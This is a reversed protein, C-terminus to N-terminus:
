SELFTLKKNSWVSIIAKLNHQNINQTSLKNEYFVAQRELFEIIFHFNVNEWFQIFHASFVYLYKTKKNIKWFILM